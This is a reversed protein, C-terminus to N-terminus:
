YEKFIPILNDIFWKDTFKLHNGKSTLFVLQNNEMMLKLGLRDEIFIRSENLPVIIKDQGSEYFEFWQSEKPQVITDETFQVMVFRQLKQLNNIYNENITLENNIDALFTSQNKYNEEKLPDHWYTAQVLFKQVWKEYAAYHLLERFYECTKSSLSPCNPLGFVGQHQGGMSILNLM